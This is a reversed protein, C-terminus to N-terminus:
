RAEAYECAMLAEAGPAMRQLGDTSTSVRFCGVLRERGSVKPCYQRCIAPAFDHLESSTSLDNSCAVVVRRARAELPHDPHPPGCAAMAFAVAAWSLLACGRARKVPAAEVTM